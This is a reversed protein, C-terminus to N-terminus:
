RLKSPLLLFSNTTEYHRLMTVSFPLLRRSPISISGHRMSIESSLLGYQHSFLICHLEAKLVAVQLYQQTIWIHPYSYCISLSHTWTATDTGIIYMSLLLLLQSHRRRVNKWNFPENSLTVLKTPCTLPSTKSLHSLRDQTPFNSRLFFSDKPCKRRFSYPRESTVDTLTSTSYLQTTNKLIRVASGCPRCWLDFNSGLIGLTICM